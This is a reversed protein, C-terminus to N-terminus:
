RGMMSMEGLIGDHHFYEGFQIHLLGEEIGECKKM